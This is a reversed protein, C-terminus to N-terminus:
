GALRRLTQLLRAQDGAAAFFEADAAEVVAIARRALAAGEPTVSLRRARSDEPDAGRTVLGRAELARLV